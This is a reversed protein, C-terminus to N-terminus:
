IHSTEEIPVKTIFSFKRNYDRSIWWKTAVTFLELMSPHWYTALSLECLPAGCHGLEEDNRSTACSVEVALVSYPLTSGLVMRSLLVQTSHGKVSTRRSRSVVSNFTTLNRRLYLHEFDLYINNKKVGENWLYCNNDLRRSINFTLIFITSRRRGSVM